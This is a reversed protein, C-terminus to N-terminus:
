QRAIAIWFGIITFSALLLSIGFLVALAACAIGIWVVAPWFILSLLAFVGTATASGIFRIATRGWKASTAAPLGNANNFTM